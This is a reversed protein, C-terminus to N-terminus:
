TVVIKSTKQVNKSMKPCKQVNKSMEPCKPCKLAKDKQSSTWINNKSSWDNHVSGIQEPQTWIMKSLDLNYLNLGSFDLKFRVLIIQVGGFCNSDSWLQKYGDLVIQVILIMKSGYFSLIHYMQKKPCKKANKSMEPCKQVNRSM